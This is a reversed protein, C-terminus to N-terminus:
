EEVEIASAVELFTDNLHDRFEILRSEMEKYSGEVYSLLVDLEEISSHAINAQSFDYKKDEVLSRIGDLESLIQRMDDTM